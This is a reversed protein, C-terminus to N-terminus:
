YILVFNVKFWNPNKIFFLCENDIYKKVKILFIITAHGM